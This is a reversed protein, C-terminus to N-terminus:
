DFDLGKLADKRSQALLSRAPGGWGIEHLTRQEDVLFYREVKGNKLEEIRFVVTSAGSIPNTFDIQGVVRLTREGLNSGDSELILDYNLTEGARLALEGLMEDIASSPFLNKGCGDAKHSRWSEGDSSFSNIRGDSGFELYFANEVLEGEVKFKTHIERRKEPAEFERIVQYGAKADGLMFVYHTEIMGNEQIGICGVLHIAVLFLLYRM